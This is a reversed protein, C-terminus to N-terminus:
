QKSRYYSYVRAIRQSVVPHKAHIHEQHAQIRDLVLRHQDLDGHEKTMQLFVNYMIDDPYACLSSSSSFEPSTAVDLEPYYKDIFSWACSYDRRQVALKLLIFYSAIYQQRPVRTKIFEDAKCVNNTTCNRTKNLACLALAKVLMCNISKTPRVGRKCMEDYVELADKIKDTRLLSGIIISYAYKRDLSLNQGAWDFIASIESKSLVDYSSYLLNKNSFHPVTHLLITEVLRSDARKAMDNKSASLKKVLKSVLLWGKQVAAQDKAGLLGRIFTDWCVVDNRMTEYNERFCNGAGIWDGSRFCARMWISWTVVDPKIGDTKEMESICQRLWEKIESSAASFITHSSSQHINNSLGDFYANWSYISRYERKASILTNYAKDLRSHRCLGFIVECLIEPTVPASVKTATNIGNRQSNSNRSNKPTLLDIYLQTAQQRHGEAFLARLLYQTIRSLLKQDVDNNYTIVDQYLQTLFVSGLREPKWSRAKNAKSRPPFIRWFFSISPKSKAKATNFSLSQAAQMTQIAKKYVECVVRTNGLAVAADLAYAHTQPFIQKITCQISASDVNSNLSAVSEKWLDIATTYSGLYFYAYVRADLETAGVRLGLLRMDDIIQIVLKLLKEQEQKNQIGTVMRRAQLHLLRMDKQCAAYRSEKLQKVKYQDANLKKCADGATNDKTLKEIQARLERYIRVADRPNNASLSNRLLQLSRSLVNDAKTTCECSGNLSLATPTSLQRRKTRPLLQLWLRRTNTTQYKSLLLGFSSDKHQLGTDVRVLSCTAILGGLARQHSHALGPVLM